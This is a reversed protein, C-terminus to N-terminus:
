NAGSNAPRWTVGWSQLSLRRLQLWKEIERCHVHVSSLSALLITFARNNIINVLTCIILICTMSAVWLIKSPRISEKNEKWESDNDGEYIEKKWIPVRTKLQDIAFSVSELAESRHPSSAAIVVSAECVPVTGLRHYIVIHKLDLWKSRLDSCIKNMEKLAMSDYAEYALSLVQFTSFYLHSLSILQNLYHLWRKGKFIIARLAWSFPHPEVAKM